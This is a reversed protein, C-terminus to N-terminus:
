KLSVLYAVLDAIDKDALGNAARNPMAGLPGNYGNILISAINEPTPEKDTVLKPHNPDDTLHLLGPGVIKQEFAGLAHCASCKAAFTAKGDNVDGGTLAITPAAKAAAVKTQALWADFAKPEDVVLKAQMVSHNAGCYESCVIDYTGTKTPSFNVETVAGPVAAVKLRFAPVWYQHIVDGSTVLIKVSKGVPIHMSAQPSYIGQSVGPYRFEFNFQHAVVEMTLNASGIPFQVQKWVVISFYMLVVLLITPLITWWFELKPSDHIPIGVTEIPEDARRRFAIVFYLVYGIVYITISMGFVLMFKMLGDINSATESIPASASPLLYDLPAYLFYLSVAINIITLLVTVLWFGPGM